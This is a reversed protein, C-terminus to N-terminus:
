RHKGSSGSSEECSKTKKRSNKERQVELRGQLVVTKERNLPKQVQVDTGAVLATTVCRRAAKVIDKRLQVKRRIRAAVEVQKNKRARLNANVGEVAEKMRLRPEKKSRPTLIAKIRKEGRIEAEEGLLMMALSDVVGQMERSPNKRSTLSVSPNGPIRGILSQFALPVKKKSAERQRQARQSILVTM